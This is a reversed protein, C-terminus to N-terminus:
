MLWAALSVSIHVLKPRTVRTVRDPVQRGGHGPDGDLGAVRVAVATDLGPGGAGGPRRGLARPPPLSRYLHLPAGSVCRLRTRWPAAELLVLRYVLRRFFDQDLDYVQRASANLHLPLRVEGHVPGHLDDLSDAVVLRACRADAV